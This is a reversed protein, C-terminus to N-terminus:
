QHLKGVCIVCIKREQLQMACMCHIDEQKFKTLLQFLAETYSLFVRIFLFFPRSHSINQKKNYYRSTVKLHFQQM